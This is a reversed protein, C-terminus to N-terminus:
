FGVEGVVEYEEEGTEGGDGDLVKKAGMKCIAVMEVRVDRMWIQDEYREIIDGAKEVVMREKGHRGRHRQKDRGKVYVTNVITAHLLLPRGDEVMLKEGEEGVQLFRERVSECFRQLSGTFSEDTPPAYLVATKPLPHMSALGRLTVRPQDPEGEKKVSSWMERLNLGALVSKAKELRGESPPISAGSRDGNVLPSPPPPFSFIGLTLHLTGLPRIATEPLSFGQPPPLTVEDKFASLSAALQPRSTPTVLPICLFHTPPPPKPRPPM